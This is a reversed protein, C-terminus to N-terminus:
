LSQFPYDSPVLFVFSSTITVPRLWCNISCNVTSIPWHGHNHPYDFGIPCICCAATANAGMGQTPGHCGDHHDVSNKGPQHHRLHNVFNPYRRNTPQTAQTAQVYHPKNIINHTSDDLHITTPYTTNTSK